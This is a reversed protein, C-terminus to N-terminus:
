MGIFIGMEFSCIVRWWADKSRVISFLDLYSIKLPNDGCWADHLFVLRQGM